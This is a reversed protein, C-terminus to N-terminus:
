HYLPVETKSVRPAQPLIKKRIYDAFTIYNKDLDALIEEMTEGKGNEKGRALVGEPTMDNKLNEKFTAEHQNYEEETLNELLQKNKESQDKQNAKTAEQEKHQAITTAKTAPADQNKTEPKAEPNVEPKSEPKKESKKEGTEKKDDKTNQQDPTKQSTKEQKPKEWEPKKESPKTETKPSPSSPSTPVVVPTSGKTPSESKIEKEVFKEVKKEKTEEPKAETTKEKSKGFFWIRKQKIKAVWTDDKTEHTDYAAFDFWKEKSFIKKSSNRFWKLMKGPTLLLKKLPHLIWQNIGTAVGAGTIMLPRRTVASVLNVTGKALRQYRKGEVKSFNLFNDVLADITQIGVEATNKLSSQGQRLINALANGTEGVIRLPMAATNEIRMATNEVFAM